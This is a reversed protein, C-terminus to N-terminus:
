HQSAPGDATRSGPEIQQAFAQLALDSDPPFIAMKGSDQADALADGAKSGHRAYALRLRGDGSGRPMLPTVAAHTQDPLTVWLQFDDYKIFDADKIPRPYHHEGAAHPLIGQHDGRSLPVCANFLSDTWAAVDDATTIKHELLYGADKYGLEVLAPLTLPFAEVLERADERLRDVKAPDACFQTSWEIGERGRYLRWGKEGKVWYSSGHHMEWPGPGYPLEALSIEDLIAKAGEKAARFAKSEFRPPHDVLQIAWPYDEKQRHTGDSPATKASSPELRDIQAMVLGGSIDCSRGAIWSLGIVVDRAMVMLLIKTLDQGPCPGESHAGLRFVWGAM